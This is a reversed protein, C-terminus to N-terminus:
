LKSAKWYGKPSTTLLLGEEQFSNLEFKNLLYIASMLRLMERGVNLLMENSAATTEKYSTLPAQHNIWSNECLSPEDRGVEEGVM